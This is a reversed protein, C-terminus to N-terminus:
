LCTPTTPNDLRFNQPRRLLELEAADDLTQLPLHPFENSLHSIFAQVAQSDLSNEGWVLKLTRGLPGTSLRLTHLNYDSGVAFCPLLAIGLGSAVAQKIAAPSDFEAIIQAAIGNEKFVREEWARTLSGKERVVFYQGALDNITVTEKEHWAHAASVVVAIEEDWLPAWQIPEDALEGEIIGIKIEDNLIAEIILPTVATKMTVSLSPYRHHFSRIWNPLLYIGIGPSAGIKVQQPLDLEDVRTVAERTEEALRLLCQAYDTLIKGSSTLKIGRRGRKFLQVGLNTELTQIHQSVAPQTLYLQEAARSFSGQQAVTQFIHLQYLNLM